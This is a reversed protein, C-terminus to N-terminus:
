RAHSTLCCCRGAPGVRHAAALGAGGPGAALELVRCGERVQAADLMSQTAYALQEDVFDANARWGPATSDWMDSVVPSGSVGALVV